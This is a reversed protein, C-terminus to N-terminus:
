PIEQWGCKGQVIDGIQYDPHKSEVVEGVGRGRMLDGIQLVNEIGAGDLMYFKMVPAVSLYLVKILFENEKLPLLDVTEMKFDSTKIFNGPRAALVLRNNKM